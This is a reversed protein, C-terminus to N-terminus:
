AALTIFVEYGFMVARQEPRNFLELGYQFVGPTGREPTENNDEYYKLNPFFSM